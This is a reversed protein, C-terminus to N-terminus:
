FSLASGNQGRQLYTGPSLEEVVLDVYEGAPVAQFDFDAEWRCEEEGPISSEVDTMRLKPQLQQPPSRPLAKPSPPLLHLRFLNSEPGEGQKVVKLRRYVHARSDPATKGSPGPQWARLDFIRSDQLIVFGKLDPEDLSRVREAHEGSTWAAPESGLM